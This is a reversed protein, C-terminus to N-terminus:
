KTKRPDKLSPLQPEKVNIRLEKLMQMQNNRESEIQLKLDESNKMLLGIEEDQEKIKEMSDPDLEGWVRRLHENYRELAESEFKQLQKYAGLPVELPESLFALMREDVVERFNGTFGYRPTEVVLLYEFVVKNLDEELLELSEESNYELPKAVLVLCPSESLCKNFSSHFKLTEKCTHNQIVEKLNRYDLKAFLYKGVSTERQLPESLQYAKRLTVSSQKKEKALSEIFKYEKSSESLEIYLVSGETSYLIDILDHAIKEEFELAAIAEQQRLKELKLKDEQEKQIKDVESNFKNQLKKLDQKLADESKNRLSKLRQHEKMMKTKGEEIDSQLNHLDEVLMRQVYKLQEENEKNKSDLHMITTRHQHEISELEEQLKLAEQIYEKRATEKTVPHVQEGDLVELYSGVTSLVFNRYGEYKSVPCPDFDHGAIELVKLLPLESLHNLSSFDRIPNQSIHLEQLNVLTELNELKSIQNDQLYLQKLKSNSELNEIKTIQNSFLWLKTLLPCCHLNEIKSIQNNPLYLERLNTLSSIAPDITIFCNIIRLTELSHSVKGLADLNELHGTSILGLDQLNYCYQLNDLRKINTFAIELTRM